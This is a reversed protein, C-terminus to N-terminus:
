IEEFRATFHRLAPAEYILRLGRIKDKNKSIEGFVDAVFKLHLYTYVRRPVALRVLENKAAIFAGTESDTSGFMLSGIEVGRIGGELYLAAVLAQGPFQEVPIHPLFKFADIYIAHGGAPKIYPVNIDDLM